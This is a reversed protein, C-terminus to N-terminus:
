IPIYSLHTNRLRYHSLRQLSNFDRGKQKALRCLMQTLIRTSLFNRLPDIQFLQAFQDESPITVSQM